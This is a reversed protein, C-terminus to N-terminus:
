EAAVTKEQAREGPDPTLAALLRERIDKLKSV